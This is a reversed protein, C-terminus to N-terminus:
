SKALEDLPFEDVIVMDVEYGKCVEKWVRAAEEGLRTKGWRRNLITINKGDLLGLIVEKEWPQFDRGILKSAAALNLPLLKTM